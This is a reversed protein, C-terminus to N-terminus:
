AAVLQGDLLHYREDVDSVLGEDHTVLLVASGEHRALTVLLQFVARANHRDLSGTPEDALLLAPRNYLARAVAVRQREGGSLKNPLYHARDQLGVQWLLSSAREPDLQGSIRGPLMVNDHVSLDALLYHQQFVLGLHKARLAALMEQSLAHVPQKLWYVEGSSPRELGALLHLLTSKGSGSPGLVAAVQAPELALTVGKLVRLAEGASYFTRHLDIARLVAM